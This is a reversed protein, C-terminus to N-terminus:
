LHFGVRERRGCVVGKVARNPKAPLEEKGM